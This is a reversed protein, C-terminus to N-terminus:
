HLIMKRTEAQQGTRLTYFLLGSTGLDAKTLEIQHFGEPYEADIVKLIRGSADTVQFSIRETKPLYFGISTREAFPNPQNQYLKFIDNSSTSEGDKNFRIVVENLDFTSAEQSFRYGEPSLYRRDLSLWESLEGSKQASFVLKVLEEGEISQGNWSVMIIGEDVFQMGFNSEHISSSLSQLDVLQLAANEFSLAFQFGQIHKVDEVSLVVEVEQGEEILLDETNFVLQGDFSRDESGVLENAKANGDIDGIKIGVFDNANMDENLDNINIVEPFPTKFPDSPDPFVFSKDVFRWSQNEPFENIIKLILKRLEVIDFTTVKGNNSVDAAIMKYPSNLQQIGLIHQSILVLDFTTVGNDPTINKKPVISYNNGAPVNFNFGGDLLTTIFGSELADTDTLEVEVQSVPEYDTTEILGAVAMKNNNSNCIDFNDQVVVFTECFNQNGELDTVYINVFNTDVEACTFTLEQLDPDTPSFSFNLQDYPTCNDFSDGNEFSFVSLTAEDIVPGLDTVLNKCVISPAKGDKITFTYKCTTLNGCGDEVKWLILHTGIPYEGSAENDANDPYAFPNFDSNYDYTPSAPDLPDYFADIKYYYVLDEDNTCDDTAVIEIDAPAPECDDEFSHITIDECDSIIEPADSELVKIEQQFTWTVYGADFNDDPQCWDIVSWERILKVCGSGVIPLETDKFTVGVLDCADEMIQPRVDEIQVQPNNELEDPDLGSGCTTITIDCPWEVGDTLTHGQGIPSSWCLFDTIDFPNANELTIIQACSSVAGTNDVATYVRTITGEGCQDADGNQSVTVKEIGCNDSANTAYGILENDPLLFVPPGANSDQVVGDWKDEDFEWCNLTTNPPCIISPLINDQVNVNVTCENFRGNPDTETFNGAIDYVRLRVQVDTGVDDCDFIVCDTFPTTPPDDVRKVKYAVIGCNDYSGDDFTNWCIVATGDEGLGISTEEDCIAVPPIQDEVILNITCTSVNGCDDTVIYTVQNAGASLGALFGGNGSIIGFPTETVVTIQDLSSCNDTYTITPLVASGVCGAGSGVIVDGPCDLVPGETDVVTIIQVHSRTEGTCADIVVWERIVQYSNNCLPVETDTFGVEIDCIDGTFIEVGDITPRGTNEPATNPNVCDITPASNGDLDVPFDVDDVSPRAFTIQQSCTSTNGSDDTATWTRTVIQVFDDTCEGVATVQDTFTFSVDQDCNDVVTPMGISGPDTGGTCAVTAPNCNLIQPALVDIVNLLGECFNGTVPNSVKVVLQEGIHTANVENNPVPVGNFFVEVAYNNSCGDEGEIILDSTIIESCDPGLAITSEDNCTLSGTPVCVEYGADVNNLIQNELVTICATYGAENADSDLEENLGMNEPVRILGWDTIDEFRLKYSGPALGYFQYYGGNATQTTQLPTNLNFCDYLEVIVNDIGPENFDKIGDGDLDEWVFDGIAGVNEMLFGANQYDSIINESLKSYIKQALGTPESGAFLTALPLLLLINTLAFARYINNM